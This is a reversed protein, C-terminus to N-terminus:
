PGPEPTSLRIYLEDIRYLGENGEIPGPTPTEPEADEKPIRHWTPFLTCHDTAMLMGLGTVLDSPGDYDAVWIETVGTSNAPDYYDGTGLGYGVVGDANTWGVVGQDRYRSAPPDYYPLAPAGPWYRIVARDSLPGGNEDKVGAIIVAPGCSARLETLRFVYDAAPHVEACQWSVAGYTAALWARDQLQGTTDYITPGPCSEVMPMDASAGMSLSQRFEARSPPEQMDAPVVMEALFFAGIAAALTLAFVPVLWLKTKM